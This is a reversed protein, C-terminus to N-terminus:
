APGGTKRFLLVSEFDVRLDANAGHRNGPAPIDKAQSLEFGAAELTAIHWMTVPVVKGKRVHDKINLVLRGGPKVLDYAKRWAAIHFNRYSKGWQMGGSNNHSLPRDLAIRYTHRASGKKDGAYSDAMRNAYAPSTAIADFQAHPVVDNPFQMRLFDGCATFPHMDAWEPEIEVGWTERGVPLNHIRGTGAFPDLVTKAGGLMRNIEKLIADNFKAPHSVAAANGTM